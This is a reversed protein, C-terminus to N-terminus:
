RSSPVRPRSGGIRGAAAATERTWRYGVGKAQCARGGRSALERRQEPTMSAFGRGRGRKKQETEESMEVAM